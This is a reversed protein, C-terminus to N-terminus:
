PSFSDHLLQILDLATTNLRLRPSFADSIPKANLVYFTLRQQFLACQHLLVTELVRSSLCTLTLHTQLCISMETKETNCVLTFVKFRPM